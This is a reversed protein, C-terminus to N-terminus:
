AERAYEMLEVIEPSKKMFGVFMKLEELERKLELIIKGTENHRAFLGRRVNGLAAKQKEIEEQLMEIESKFMDYQM